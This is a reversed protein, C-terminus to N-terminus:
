FKLFSLIKKCIAGKDKFTKIKEMSEDYQSNSQHYDKAPLKDEMTEFTHMENEYSNQGLNSEGVVSESEPELLGVVEKEHGDKEEHPGFEEKSRLNNTEEGSSVTNISNGLKFSLIEGITPNSDSLIGNSITNADTFRVFSKIKHENIHNEFWSPFWNGDIM